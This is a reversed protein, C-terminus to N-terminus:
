DQPPQEDSIGTQEPETAEGASLKDMVVLALLMLLLGVIYGVALAALLHWELQTKLFWATVGWTGYRIAAGALERYTM